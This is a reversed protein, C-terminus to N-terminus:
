VRDRSPDDVEISLLRLEDSGGPIPRDCGCACTELTTSASWTRDCDLCRLEWPLLELDIRCGPLRAEETVARWALEMAEPEVARLPGARVKVGKLAAGPPVHKQALELLAAALSLEHM